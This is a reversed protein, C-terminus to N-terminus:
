EKTTAMHLCVETIIMHNGVMVKHHHTIQSNDADMINNVEMGETTEVEMGPIKLDELSMAGQHIDNAMVVVVVVLGIMEQLDLDIPIPQLVMQDISM